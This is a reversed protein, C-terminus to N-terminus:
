LEDRERLVTYRNESPALKRFASEPPSTLTDPKDSDHPIHGGTSILCVLGQGKVKLGGDPPSTLVEAKVTPQDKDHPLHGQGEPQGQNGDPQGQNGAPQGQTNDQQGQNGDSAAVSASEKGESPAQTPTPVPYDTPSAAPEQNDIQAPQAPDPGHHFERHLKGSHLDDIFKKLLGPTDLDKKVDHPFLYMHRFSDIALVPLDNSSKGLHHLPHTFKSGDAILFNVANKDGLLERQVANNFREVIETDELKHFLILFPLGEETLEEANEFTIERVLPVCRDHMWQAMFDFNHTEGTYGVDEHRTNPPRFVIKSEAGAREGDSIPGVAAHFVCDDRLQMAVRRYTKYSDTEKDSFYGIMNRKKDQLEDLEELKGHQQVTDELQKRVFETLAEVSRQGRYEKKVAQGNRFLKLTPYKSIHYQTSISTERDCDVKGFAVKGQDPFLEKVKKAAEDFVPALIQSFRCWDAYFNVFVLEHTSVVNNFTSTTLVQSEARTGVSLLCVMAALLCTSRSFLIAFSNQTVM